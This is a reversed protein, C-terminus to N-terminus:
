AMKETLAAQDHDSDVRYIAVKDIRQRDMDLVEFRLKGAQFSEGETPLRDLRHVIYGALSQFPEEEEEVLDGLEPIAEVVEDIEMLGDVLWTDPKTQRLTPKSSSIASPRLDGVVEEVLDDTTVIGRVTGFEDTVIAAGQPSHRLTNLLALAPQNEPVFVPPKMLESLPKQERQAASVYLDRLSLLGAIEDRSNDYVPFIRQQSEAVVSWIQEHTDELHLFVIQLKPRMVEEARLNRLDFIGEVMESEQQNVTGMVIGERILVEV